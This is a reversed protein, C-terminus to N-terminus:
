IKVGLKFTSVKLVSINNWRRNRNGSSRSKGTGEGFCFFHAAKRGGM